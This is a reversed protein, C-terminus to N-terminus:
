SVTMDTSVCCLKEIMDSAIVSSESQNEVCLDGLKGHIWVARCVTEFVSAASHALMGVIIGTLVDGSGATAMGANGTDNEYVQGDPSFVRTRHSKKVITVGHKASMRAPDGDGFLRSYERSHPTIVAGACYELWQPNRAIINIADADIVLPVGHPRQRLLLLLAEHTVDAVGLGPGVGIASYRGLSSPPSAITELGDDISVMAEPFACQMTDVCLRPLHVTVLGCGSRLAARAALVACGCRGYAGAVILAHGYDHKTTEQKRLM